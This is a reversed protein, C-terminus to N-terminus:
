PGNSRVTSSAASTDGVTGAAGGVAAVTLAVVAGLALAGLLTFRM